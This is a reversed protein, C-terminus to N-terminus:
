ALTYAYSHSYGQLGSSAALDWAAPTVPRTGLVSAPFCVQDESLAVLVRLQPAMEGAGIFVPKPLRSFNFTSLVSGTLSIPVTGKLQSDFTFLIFWILHSSLAILFGDAVPGNSSCQDITVHFIFRMDRCRIGPSLPAQWKEMRFLLKQLFSYPKLHTLGSEQTSYRITLKYPSAGVRIACCVEPHAQPLVELSLWVM